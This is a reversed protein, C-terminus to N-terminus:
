CESRMQIISLLQQLSQKEAATLLSTIRVASRLNALQFGFDVAQPNLDAIVRKFAAFYSEQHLNEDDM